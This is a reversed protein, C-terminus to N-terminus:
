LYKNIRECYQNWKDIIKNYVTNNNNKLDAIFRGIDKRHAITQKHTRAYCKQKLAIEVDFDKDINQTFQCSSVPIINFDDKDAIGIILAPREKFAKSHTKIDYFPLNIMYIKGIM